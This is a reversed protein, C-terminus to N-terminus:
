RARAKRAADVNEVAQRFQDSQVQPDNPSLGFALAAKTLEVACVGMVRQALESVSYHGNDYQNAAKWECDTVRSQVALAEDASPVNARSAPRSLEASSCAQVLCGISLILLSHLRRKGRTRTV